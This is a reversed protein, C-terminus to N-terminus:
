QRGKRRKPGKQAATAKRAATPGPSAAQVKKQSQKGAPPAESQEPVNQDQQLMATSYDAANM